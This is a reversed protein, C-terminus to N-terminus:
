AYVLYMEKIALVLGHIPDDESILDFSEELIMFNTLDSEDFAKRRSVKTFINLAIRSLYENKFGPSKFVNVLQFDASKNVFEAASVPKGTEMPMIYCNEADLNSIIQPSHTAILFQCGKYMKFTSTLLEIYKEQWEPHLCVEPEDICILSNNEIQSAIGLLSMVVSQEGSSADNIRLRETLGHKIFTVDRLKAMGSLLLFLFDDDITYDSDMINIGRRSIEVDFRPKRAKHRVRSFIELTRTINSETQEMKIFSQTFAPGFAPKDLYELLALRPDESNLIYEMGGATPSLHFRAEISDEYGLYGLVDAVINARASDYIISEILSNMIRAMYALGLNRSSLGKLGLYAYEKIRASDRVVPFRDFPSTSVAIVQSPEYEYFLQSEVTRSLRSSYDRMFSNSPIRNRLLQSIVGELLRSKGTGNKGVIVTFCNDESRKENLFFYQKGNAVYEILM